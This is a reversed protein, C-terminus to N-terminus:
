KRRSKDNARQASSPHAVTSNAARLHVNSNPVDPGGPPSQLWDPRHLCSTVLESIKGINSWGQGMAYRREKCWCEM